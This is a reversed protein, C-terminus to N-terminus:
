IMDIPNLLKDLTNSDLFGLALAADKLSINENYAKKAVMAANDYGIAPSLATVLMLSGHLLQNIRAKKPVIGKVCRVGFSCMAGSILEISRLLNYIMVPRFVNLELHGSAASITIVHNNGMVQACVMTMAECQTPNIKGPMISSGPENEPLAIEGIGCRPGSALVRIDNAIKLLSASLVNLVGSLELIADSAGIAEFKNVATVFPYGTIERIKTIFANTFEASCNVGTGVATGGQALEYLSPLAKNIRILGKHLQMAYGSFEQGLTLPMADQMHTRGIKIIGSFETVKHEFIDILNELAPLLNNNVALVAAIHMATPFSDNSSQSKNVHDNPHVPKKLGMEGGMIEIARNSIVENLNMNTQTGSGTQWVKLPFHENLKGSIIEEAAVAIASFVENTLLGLKLNAHAAAFKQMAFAKIFLIPFIDSGIDGFNLLSRQTQAGWYKDNPVKQMGLSDSENRFKM